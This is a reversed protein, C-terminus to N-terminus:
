GPANKTFFFFFLFVLFIVMVILTFKYEPSPSPLSHFWSSLSHSKLLLVDFHNVKGKQGKLFPPALTLVAPSGPRNNNRQNTIIFLEVLPPHLVSFPLGNM